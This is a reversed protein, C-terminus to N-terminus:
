NTQPFVVARFNLSGAALSQRLQDSRMQLNNDSHRQVQGFGRPTEVEQSHQITLKDPTMWITVNAQDALPLRGEQKLMPAPVAKIQESSALALLVESGPNGEVTVWADPDDPYTLSTVLRDDSNAMIKAEGNEDLLVLAAYTPRNFRSHIQLEDGTRLPAASTIDLLVTGARRVRVELEPYHAESIPRFGWLTLAVFVALLTVLAALTRRRVRDRRVRTGRPTKPSPGNKWCVEFVRTPEDIGKLAYEGHDHWVVPQLALWGRASDYVAHSVLIQGGNAMSEVRAARNVHRGFVDLSAQKEVLVQGMHMGIRVVIPPQDSHEANHAALSQQIEVARSVAQSPQAFIYMLADGIQKICRGAGDRELIGRLLHDHQHRLDRASIEGSREALETSGKLDTFMIVLVATHNQRAYDAISNLDAAVVDAAANNESSGAALTKTENAHVENLM